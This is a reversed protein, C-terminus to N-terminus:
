IAVGQKLYTIKTEMQAQEDAAKGILTQSEQLYGAVVTTRGPNTLMEFLAASQLCCISNLKKLNQTTLEMMRIAIEDQM